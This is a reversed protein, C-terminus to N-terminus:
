FESKTILEAKKEYDNMSKLIFHLSQKSVSRNELKAIKELRAYDEKSITVFYRKNNDSVAM